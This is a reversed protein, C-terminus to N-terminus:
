ESRRVGRAAILFEAIPEPVNEALGLEFHIAVAGDDDASEAIQWPWAAPYAPTSGPRIRITHLAKPAGRLFLIM